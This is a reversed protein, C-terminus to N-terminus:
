KLGLIIEVDAKDTDKLTTESTPSYDPGLDQTITNILAASQSGEKVKIVTQQYDNNDANGSRDTQYGLAKLKAL